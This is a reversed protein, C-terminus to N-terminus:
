DHDSERYNMIFALAQHKAAEHDIKDTMEEERDFDDGVTNGFDSM